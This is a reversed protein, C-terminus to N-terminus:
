DWGGESDKAPNLLGHKGMHEEIIIRYEFLADTIIDQSEFDHFIIPRQSSFSLVNSEKFPFTKRLANRTEIQKKRLLEKETVTLSASITLYVTNLDAFVINYYYTKLEYEFDFLSISFKNIRSFLEHLRDQIQGAQNYSGKKVEGDESM